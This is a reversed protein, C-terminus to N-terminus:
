AWIILMPKKKKKSFILKVIEGEHIGFSKGCDDFFVYHEKAVAYQM